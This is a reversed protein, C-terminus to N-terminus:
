QSPPRVVVVQFGVDLDRYGPSFLSRSAARAFDANGGWSGGRLVRWDDSKDVATDQPTKYKNLCWEWVNGSMDVCGYPSDGQPLYQGVPTTKGVNDDFNCLKDTPDNNGWPYKRGDTGRAAKEWQEETPLQLGAWECFAVADYWTVFVVPHDAKDAPFTRKQKNWNYPRDMDDDDRIPVDYNLNADIFRKYVAHTVATKSIWYEPLKRKEGKDGYKFEGAPVRVFELGTKEHVFTDGSTGPVKPLAPSKKRGSRRPELQPAPKQLQQLAVAQLAAVNRYDPLLVDIKAALTLVSLWDGNAQAQQLQRYLPKVQAEQQQRKSDTPAKEPKPDPTEPQAPPRSIQPSSVTERKLESLLAEMNWEYEKDRFSLSQWQRWLSPPKCDQVNLFLLRAENENDLAIATNAENNVWKSNIANPTLLVLFVGSEDLGRGIAPVWKEGPRISDPTIFIDYGNARLDHAVRQAMEADKSSHSVFIQKPNRPQSKYEQPPAVKKKLQPFTKRYVNEREQELAVLLNERKRRRECYGILKNVKETMSMNNGFYNRSVETFYDLCFSDLEVHDFSDLIFERLQKNNPTIM